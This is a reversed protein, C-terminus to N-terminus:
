KSGRIAVVARRKPLRKAADAANSFANGLAHLLAKTEFDWTGGSEEYLGQAVLNLAQGMAVPNPTKGQKRKPKRM